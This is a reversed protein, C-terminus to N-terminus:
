EGRGGVIVFRSPFYPMVRVPRRLGARDVLETVERVTFARLISRLGDAVIYSRPALPRAVLRFGLWAFCSRAIDSLVYRRVPMEDLM